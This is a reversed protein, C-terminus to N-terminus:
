VANIPKNVKYYCFFIKHKKRHKKLEPLKDNM